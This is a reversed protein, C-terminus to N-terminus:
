KKKIIKEAFERDLIEVKKALGAQLVDDCIGVIKHPEGKAEECVFEVFDKKFPIIYDSRYKKSPRDFKLRAEILKTTDEDTLAKLSGVADLRRLFPQIPGGTSKEEQEMEQLRTWGDESVAVFIGMRALEGIDGIVDGGPFDYLSRLIGI